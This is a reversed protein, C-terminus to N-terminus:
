IYVHLDSIARFKEHVIDVSADILKLFYMKLALQPSENLKLPVAREQVLFTNM